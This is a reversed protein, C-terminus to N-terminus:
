NAGPIYLIKQSICIHFKRWIYIARYNIKPINHLLQLISIQIYVGLKCKVSKSCVRYMSYDVNLKFLLSLKWNRHKQCMEFAFYFAFEFNSRSM